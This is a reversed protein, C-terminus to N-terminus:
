FFLSLGAHPNEFYCWLALLMADIGRPLSFSVPNDMVERDPSEYMMTITERGPNYEWIQGEKKAGGDTAVIYIRGGYSWAGELRTFLAAGEGQWLIAPHEADPGAGTSDLPGSPDPHDIKVWEVDFTTGDPILDCCNDFGDEWGYLFKGPMDKVKLVYLEGGDQLTAGAPYNDKWDEGEYPPIYRYFGAPRADETEYVYGTGPDVAVAEHSFRGASRIAVGNSGGFGLVDFLFGHDIDVEEDYTRTEEAAIWSGWPTAGGACPRITGGLSSESGTWEGKALDFYLTTTGGYQRPNYTGGHFIQAGEGLSTEHNRVIAIVDGIRDVVAMGDHDTPTPEGDSVTVLPTLVCDSQGFCCYGM